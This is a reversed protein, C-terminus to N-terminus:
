VRVKYKIQREEAEGDKLKKAAEQIALMVGYSLSLRLQV